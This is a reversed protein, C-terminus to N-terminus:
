AFLITRGRCVDLREVWKKPTIGINRVEVDISFLELAIQAIAPTDSSVTPLFQDGEAVSEFLDSAIKESQVIRHLVIQNRRPSRQKLTKGELFEAPKLNLDEGKNSAFGVNRARGLGYIM